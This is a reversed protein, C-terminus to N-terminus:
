VCTSSAQMARRLLMWVALARAAVAGEGGYRVGCLDRGAADSDLAAAVVVGVRDLSVGCFCRSM